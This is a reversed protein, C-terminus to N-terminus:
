VSTYVHRCVLKYVHRCVHTCPEMAIVLSRTLGLSLAVRLTTIDFHESDGKLLEDLIHQDIKKKDLREAADIVRCRHILWALAKTDDADGEYAPDFSVKGLVAHGSVDKPAVVDTTVGACALRM